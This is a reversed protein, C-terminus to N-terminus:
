EAKSCEGYAKGKVNFCREGSDCDTDVTCCEEVSSCTGDTCVQCKDDANCDKDAQCEATDTPTTNNCASVALLALTLVFATLLSKFVRTM